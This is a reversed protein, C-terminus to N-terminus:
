KQTDKSIHINAGVRYEIGDPEGAVSWIWHIDVCADQSCLM